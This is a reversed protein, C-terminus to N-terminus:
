PTSGQSLVWDNICQRDEESLTYTPLYPMTAGCPPADSLKTLLLSMAPNAPDLIPLGVCDSTGMTTSLRTALTAPDTVLDVWPLTFPTGAVGHCSSGACVMPDAFIETARDCATGGPGAGGGSPPMVPPVVSPGVSPSVAPNPTTGALSPYTNAPRILPSATVAEFASPDDLDGACAGCLLLASLRVACLPVASSPRLASSPLSFNPPSLFTLTIASRTKM